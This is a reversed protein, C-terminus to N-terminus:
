FNLSLTNVNSEPTPEVLTKLNNGSKLLIGEYETAIAIQLGKRKVVNVQQGELDSVPVLENNYFSVVGKDTAVYVVWDSADISTIRSDPLGDEAIMTEWRGGNYVHFGNETGMYLHNHNFDLAIVNDFFTTDRLLYRKKFIEGDWRYLGDGETGIWLGSNDATMDSVAIDDMLKNKGFIDRSYLGNETGIMLRYEYSYLDTIIGDFDEDIFKIGSEDYSFLKAGGMYIKTDHSTIAQLEDDVSYSQSSNDEFSYILLGGKFVAYLKSDVIIMDKFHSLSEVDIQNGEFENADNTTPQEVAANALQEIVPATVSDVIDQAFGKPKGEDGSCGVMLMFISVSIIGIVLTKAKSKM